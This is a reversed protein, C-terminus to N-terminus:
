RVICHDFLFEKYTRDIGVLLYRDGVLSGKFRAVQERCAAFYSFVADATPAQFIWLRHEARAQVLKQFDGDIEASPTWECEVVLPLRVLYGSGSENRTMQSWSLDYLWWEANFSFQKALHSLGDIIRSTWARRGFGEDNAAAELPISVLVARIAEEIEDLDTM